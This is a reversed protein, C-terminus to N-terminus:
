NSPDFIDGSHAYRSSPSIFQDLYRTSLYDQRMKLAYPLIKRMGKVIVLTALLWGYLEGTPEPFFKINAWLSM